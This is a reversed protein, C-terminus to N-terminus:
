ARPSRRRQSTLRRPGTSSCSRSRRRRPAHGPTAPCLCPPRASLCVSVRTTGAPRLAPPAAGRPGNSAAAVCAAAAAAAAACGGLSHPRCARQPLQMGAAAVCVASVPDYPKTHAWLVLMDIAENRMQRLQAASMAGAGVVAAAGAGAAAAPLAPLRAGAPCTGAVRKGCVRAGGWRRARLQTSPAATARCQAGRM